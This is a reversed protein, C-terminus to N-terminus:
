TILQKIPIFLPKWSTLDMYFRCQMWDGTVLLANLEYAAIVIMTDSLGIRSIWLGYRSSKSKLEGVSPGCPKGMTKTAWKLVKLADRSGSSKLDYINAYSYVVRYGGRRFGELLSKVVSKVSNPGHVVVWLVSNDFM